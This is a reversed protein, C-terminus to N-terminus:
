DSEQNKNPMANLRETLRDLATEYRAIINQRSLGLCKAIKPFSMQCARMWIIRKNTTGDITKFCQRTVLGWIDIQESTPNRKSKFDDFHDDWSLDYWKKIIGWEGWGDPRPYRSMLARDTLVAIGFWYKVKDKSWKEEEGNM